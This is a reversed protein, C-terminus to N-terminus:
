SCLRCDLVSVVFGLFFLVFYGFFCQVQFGFVIDFQCSLEFVFVLLDEFLQCFDDDVLFFYEVLDDYVEEDVVVVDEGVNGFKGFCQDNLGYCLDEIEVEVFNLECWIQYWGVDGVCVDDLFVGVGIMVFYDEYWFWDEVVDYEGVFDVVCRGFCLCSEEFCYLFVVYCDGVFGVFEVLGEEDECCLVWDFEFFCVWKGFCLEIVEYEVDDDFM